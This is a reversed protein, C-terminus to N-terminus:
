RKCRNYENEGLAFYQIGTETRVAEQIHLLESDTLKRRVVVADHVNALLTANIARLERRVIDMMITEAHQYLWSLKQSNTFERPLKRQQKVAALESKWAADSGFYELIFKNLQIQEDNFAKMLDCDIFRALYNQDKFVDKLSTERVEGSLGKWRGRSLRAGFGLANMAGKIKERHDDPPNDGFVDDIVIQLFENKNELYLTMASFMDRICYEPNKLGAYLLPAFGMRWATSCSKADYEWSDGLFAVRLDKIVSIASIGQYYTRGFAKKEIKQHLKGGTVQAIRLILEAQHLANQARNSNLGASGRVTKRMYNKLSDTDVETTFYENQQANISANQYDHLVSRAWAIHEVTPNDLYRTLEGDDFKKLWGMLDAGSIDLFKTPKLLAKEGNYKNANHNINYVLPYGNDRLWAHVRFKRNGITPSKNTLTTLSVEYVNLKRARENRSLLSERLEQQLLAIYKDLQRKARGVPKPFAAQIADLVETKYAIKLVM